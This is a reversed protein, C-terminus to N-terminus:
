GIFSVIEKPAVGWEGRKEIISYRVIADDVRFYVWGNNDVGYLKDFIGMKKIGIDLIEPDSNLFDTKLDIKWLSLSFSDGQVPEIYYDKWVVPGFTGSKQSTLKRWEGKEWGPAYYSLSDQDITGNLFLGGNEDALVYNRVYILLAMQTPLQVDAVQKGSELEFVGLRDFAYPIYIRNNAVFPIEPSHIEFLTDPLKIKRFPYPELGDFEVLDHNGEGIAIFGENSNATYFYFPTEYDRPLYEGLDDLYVECNLETHKYEPLNDEVPPLEEHTPTTSLNPLTQTIITQDSEGENRMSFCASLFFFTLFLIRKKQKM